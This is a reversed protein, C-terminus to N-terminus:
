DLWPLPGPNAQQLRNSLVELRLHHADNAPKQLAGELLKPIPSKGVEYLGHQDILRESAARWVHKDPDAIARLLEPQVAAGKYIGLTRIAVIRAYPDKSKLHPELAMLLEQDLPEGLTDRDGLFQIARLSGENIKGILWRRAAPIQYYREALNALSYMFASDKRFEAYEPSDDFFHALVAQIKPKNVQDEVPKPLSRLACRLLESNGSELAGMHLASVYDKGTHSSIQELAFIAVKPDDLKLLPLLEDHVRDSPWKALAQLCTRLAEQRLTLGLGAQQLAKTVRRALHQQCEVDSLKALYIQLGPNVSLPAQSKEVEVILARVRQRIEPDQHQASRRLEELSAQGFKQLAATAQERRDFLADGLQEVLAAVQAAEVKKVAATEPFVQDLVLQLGALGHDLLPQPDYAESAGILKVVLPKITAQDAAPLRAPCLVCCSIMSFLRFAARWCVQIVRTRRSTTM